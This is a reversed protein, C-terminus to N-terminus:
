SRTLRYRTGAGAVEEASFGAARLASVGRAGALRAWCTVDGYGADGLVGLAATVLEGASGAADGVVLEYIEAGGKGDADRSGGASLYAVPAAEAGELLLHFHDEGPPLALHEALHLGPRRGGLAAAAALAELAPHDDATAARVSLEATGKWVACARRSPPRTRPM